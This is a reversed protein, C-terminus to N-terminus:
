GGSSLLRPDATLEAPPTQQVTSPQLHHLLISPKLICSGFSAISGLRILGKLGQNIAAQRNTEDLPVFNARNPATLYRSFPRDTRNGHCDSPKSVWTIPIDISQHSPISPSQQTNNTNSSSKASFGHFFSGM